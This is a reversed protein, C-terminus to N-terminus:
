ETIARIQAALDAAAADPPAGQLALLKAMDGDVRVKGAMFAQMGAAANGDVLIAKATDYDVTVTLDPNEVHGTGLDITGASTDLHADLQSDSFPVETIVLNMRVSQAPAVAPQPQTARIEHAAKLWDESLFAFAM